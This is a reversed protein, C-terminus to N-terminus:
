INIIRDDSNKIAYQDPKIINGDSDRFEFECEAVLGIGPRIGYENDDIILKKVKKNNNVRSLEGYSYEKNLNIEDIKYEYNDDVKITFANMSEKTEDNYIVLSYNDIPHGKEESAYNVINFSLKEKNTNKFQNKCKKLKACQIAMLKYLYKINEDYNSESDFNWEEDKYNFVEEYNSIDINEVDIEDINSIIEKFKEDLKTNESYHINMNEPELNFYEIEDDENVNYPNVIYSIVNRKKIIKEPLEKYYLENMEENYKLEFHEFYQMVAMEYLKSFKQELEEGELNALSPIFKNISIEQEEGNIVIKIKIPVLKGNEDLEKALLGDENGAALIIFSLIDSFKEYSSLQNDKKDNLVRLDNESSKIDKEVEKDIKKAIINYLKLIIESNLSTEGNNYLEIENVSKFNQLENYLIDIDEIENVTDLKECLKNIALISDDSDIVTNPNIGVIESLKFIIEKYKDRYLKSQSDNDYYRIHVNENDNDEYFLGYKEKHIDYVDNLINEMIDINEKTINEIIKNNLCESNSIIYKYGNVVENFNKIFEKSENENFNDINEIYMKSIKVWIDNIIENDEYLMDLSLIDKPINNNKVLIDSDINKKNLLKLTKIKSSIIDYATSVKIENFKCTNYRKRFKNVNCSKITEEGLEELTKKNNENNIDQKAKEIRENIENQITNYTKIKKSIEYSHGEGLSLGYFTGDKTKGIKLNIDKLVTNDFNKIDFNKNVNIQIPVDSNPYTQIEGEDNAVALILAAIEESNTTLIGSYSLNIFLFLILIFIIM